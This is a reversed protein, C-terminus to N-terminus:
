DAKFTLNFTVPVTHTISKLGAIDRLKNIGSILNFDNGDLIMPTLSNVSITKDINQSIMVDCYATVLEGHLSIKGELKHLISKGASAQQLVSQPIDAEFSANGFRSVEFLHEVMRADRIEIRTNVSTLDINLKAHGNSKIKADFKKFNHVETNHMNKNTLFHVSSPDQLTWDASSISSFILTATLTFIRM